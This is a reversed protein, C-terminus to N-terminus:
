SLKRKLMRANRMLNPNRTLINPHELLKDANKEFKKIEDRIYPVNLDHHLM